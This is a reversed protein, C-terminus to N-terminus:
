RRLPGLGFYAGLYASLGFRVCKGLFTALLFKGYAYQMRGATLGGLDTLFNPVASLVFITAFPHAQLSRLIRWYWTDRPDRAAILERSARGVAYGTSEGLASGLGAALSVWFPNLTAGLLYAAVMTPGPIFLSLAGLLTIVFIGAYGWAALRQPDIPAFVIALSLALSGVFVLISFLRARRGVPAPM